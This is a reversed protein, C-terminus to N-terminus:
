DFPVVRVTVFASSTRTAPETYDIAVYRVFESCDDPILGATVLADEVAKLRNSLDYNRRWGKGGHVTLYVALPFQTAPPLNALLPAVSAKWARYRATPVRGRGRVNLHLNNTSPPLPLAIGEVLTSAM